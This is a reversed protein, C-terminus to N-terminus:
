ETIQRQMFLHLPLDRSAILNTPFEEYGPNSIFPFYFAVM